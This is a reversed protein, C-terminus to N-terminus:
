QSLKLDYQLSLTDSSYALMQFVTGDYYYQYLGNLHTKTPAGTKPYTKDTFNIYPSSIGYTGNSGAHVTSTDGTVAYTANNANLTLTLNCSTTDFPVKDTSRHLLRFQGTFTGSPLGSAAPSAVQNKFCGVALLSLVPLLYLLKKKM